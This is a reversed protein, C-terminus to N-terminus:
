EPKYDTDEIVFICSDYNGRKTFVVYRKGNHIVDEVTLTSSISERNEPKNVPTPEECSKATSALVLLPAVLALLRFKKMNNGKQGDQRNKRSVCFGGSLSPNSM